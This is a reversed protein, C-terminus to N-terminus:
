VKQVKPDDGDSASIQFAPPKKFLMLHKIGMAAEGADYLGPALKARPDNSDSGTMGPPLTPAAEPVFPNGGGEDDASPEAPSPSPAPNQAQLRTIGVSLIMAALAVLLSFRPVRNM